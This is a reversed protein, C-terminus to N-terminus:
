DIEAFRVPPPREGVFDLLERARRVANKVATPSDPREEDGQGIRSYPIWMCWWDFLYSADREANSYPQLNKPWGLQDWLKLTAEAAGRKAASLSAAEVVMGERKSWRGREPRLKYREETPTGKPYVDLSTPGIWIPVFHVVEAADGGPEGPLDGALWSHLDHRVAFPLHLQEIVRRIEGERRRKSQGFEAIFRRM